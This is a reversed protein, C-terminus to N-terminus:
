TITLVPKTVIISQPQTTLIAAFLAILIAKAVCYDGSERKRGWMMLSGPSSALFEKALSFMHVSSIDAVPASVISTTTKHGCSESSKSKLQEHVVHAKHITDNSNYAIYYMLPLDPPPHSHTKDTGRKACREDITLHYTYNM